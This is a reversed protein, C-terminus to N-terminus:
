KVLAKYADPLQYEGGIKAQPAYKKAEAESAFYGWKQFIKQGSDSTLYDIFSQAGAKNRAFNSIAAPIYAIRPLQEPKLYVVDINAPDWDQFVHWGIVADVSKLSILTATKECSDAYTVVNKMVAPLARNYELIEVSYLGLCVAEPNGIGVKIAPRALDELAQIGRPNGHQVAIVPVLYALIKASAPDTIKKNESKVLYDPSGPIYIDGTKALEMQSLVAGSGGYTLYVKLGTRQEFSVAAEDLSPKSAAGAFINIERSSAPSGEAPASQGQCGMLSTLLIGIVLLPTTLWLFYRREPRSRALTKCVAKM